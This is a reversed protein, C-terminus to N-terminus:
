FRAAYRLFDRVDLGGKEAEKRNRGKKLHDKLWAELPYEDAIEDEGMEPGFEGTHAWETIQYFWLNRWKRELGRDVGRFHYGRAKTAQGKISRLVRRSLRRRSM